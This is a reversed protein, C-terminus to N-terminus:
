VKEKQMENYHVVHFTDFTFFVKGYLFLYSEGQLFLFGKQVIFRRRARCFPSLRTRFRRLILAGRPQSFM